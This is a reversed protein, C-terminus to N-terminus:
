CFKPLKDVFIADSHEHVLTPENPSSSCLDHLREDDGIVDSFFKIRLKKKRKHISSIM